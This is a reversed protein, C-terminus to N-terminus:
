KKCSGKGLDKVSILSSAFSNETPNINSNMEAIVSVDATISVDATQSPKTSFITVDLMRSVDIDKTLEHTRILRYCFPPCVIQNDVIGLPIAPVIKSGDVKLEYRHQPTARIQKTGRFSNSDVEYPHYSLDLGTYLGIYIKFLSDFNNTIAYKDSILQYLYTHYERNKFGGNQVLFMYLIQKFVFLPNFKLTITHSDVEDTIHNLLRLTMNNFESIYESSIGNCKRCVTRFGLKQVVTDSGDWNKLLVDKYQLWKSNKQILNITSKPIVHDFELRRLKGCVNCLDFTKRGKSKMLSLSRSSIHAEARKRKRKKYSKRSM